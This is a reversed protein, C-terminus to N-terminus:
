GDGEGRPEFLYGVGYITRIAPAGAPPLALKRRLNMVHVDINREFGAFDPGLAVDVHM